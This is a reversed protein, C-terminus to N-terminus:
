PTFRPARLPISVLSQIHIGSHGTLDFGALAKEKRLGIRKSGCIVRFVCIRIEEKKKMGRPERLRHVRHLRHNKLEKGYRRATARLSRPVLSRLQGGAVQQTGPLRGM